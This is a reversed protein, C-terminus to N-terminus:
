NNETSIEESYDADLPLEQEPIEMCFYNDGIKIVSFRNENHSIVNVSGQVLNFKAKQLLSVEDVNLSKEIWYFNESFGPVINVEKNDYKMKSPVDNISTVSIKQLGMDDFFINEEILNGDVVPYKIFQNDIIGNDDYDWLIISGENVLYEESFEFFTNANRDIKIKKLYLNENEFINGFINFIFSEDLLSSANMVNLEANELESKALVDYLEVTEYFGDDNYDVFREFPYGEEFNCFAYKANGVFFDAYSLKGSSSYYVVSSNNRESTRVSVVSSKAFIESSNPLVISSDIYPVFFNAGIKSATSDALFEFPAYLFDGKTFDYSCEDILFNMKKVYPYEEYFLEIKANPYNVSLPSGLDCVAYLDEYGDCNKDYNVYLPRGCDYQVIIEDQLDYDVDILLRGDFEELMEKLQNKVEEESLYNILLQLMTLSINEDSSNIFMNYAEFDSLIGARKGAIAMLVSDSKEKALISSFLRKQVDGEVLFSALLESDYNQKKYNPFANIYADTISAVIEPIEYNFNNLESINKYTAEFLFFVNPFREDNPYIRRSTNIKARAEDISKKTGLRYLNKIRIFEADASYIYPEKNLVELSEDYRKTECLLDALLIRAGNLSYGIWNNKEFATKITSIVEARLKNEKVQTAAKVYYLDSISDDYSIGLEAQKKANVFDNAILYNEAVKLCREATKRNAKNAYNQSFAFGCLLLFAFFVFIKKNFMNKKM